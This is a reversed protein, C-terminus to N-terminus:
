ATAGHFLGQRRPTSDASGRGGSRRRLAPISERVNEAATYTKTSVVDGNNNKEEVKEITGDARLTKKTGGLLFRPPKPIFVTVPTVGDAAFAIERTEKGVSNLENVERLLYTKVSKGTAPDM